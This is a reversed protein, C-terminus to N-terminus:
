GGRSLDQANQHGRCARPLSVRLTNSFYNVYRILRPETSKKGDFLCQATSEQYGDFGNRARFHTEAVWGKGSKVDIIQTNIRQYSGPNTLQNKIAKDCNSAGVYMREGVKVGISGQQISSQSSSETKERPIIGSEVFKGQVFSLM